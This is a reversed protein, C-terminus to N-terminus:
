LSIWRFKIPMTRLTIHMSNQIICTVILYIIFINPHGINSHIYIYSM